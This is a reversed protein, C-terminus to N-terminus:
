DLDAAVSVTSNGVGVVKDLMAQVSSGIRKEYDNATKDTSTGAAGTTLVNGKADVLSVNEPKLDTVSSSTLHVIANVQSDTLTTGSSTEVFVSATPSQKQDTFVTQAPIALKVAANKVGDMAMITKALEGEMARKYTVSQQFESSTVGMNDLLGYGGTTSSPLNAAAAKLREDNVKADPVMITSGGNDLQYPVNDTKLQAVIASADTGSLGSFLPSYAQKGFVSGLAVSGLLM